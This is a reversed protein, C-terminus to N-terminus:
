NLGAPERFHLGPLSPLVDPRWFIESRAWISPAVDEPKPSPQCATVFAWAEPHELRMRGLMPAIAAFCPQRLGRHEVQRGAPHLHIGSARLLRLLCPEMLACVDTVAHQAGLIISARVLALRLIMPPAQIRARRAKSIIFRSVEATSWPAARLHPPLPCHAQFPFCSDPAGHDPLVLRVAGVAEGSVRRRLLAHRARADFADAELGAVGPEYANEVCYVQHRLCQAERVLSPSDATDIVFDREVSACAAAFAGM